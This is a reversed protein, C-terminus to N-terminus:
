GFYAGGVLYQAEAEGAGARRLLGQVTEYTLRPSDRVM